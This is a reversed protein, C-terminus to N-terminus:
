AKRYFRQEAVLADGLAVLGLEVNHEDSGVALL